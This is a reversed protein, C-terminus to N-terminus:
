LSVQSSKITPEVPVKETSDSNVHKDCRVGRFYLEGGSFQKGLCVNLSVESDDM